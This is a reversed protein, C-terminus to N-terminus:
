SLNWNKRLIGLGWNGRKQIGTTRITQVVCDPLWLALRWYMIMQKKGIAQVYKRSHGGPRGQQEPLPGAGRGALSEGWKQLSLCHTCHNPAHDRSAVAPTLLRAGEQLRGGVLSQALRQAKGHRNGGICFLFPLLVLLLPETSLQFLDRPFSLASGPM